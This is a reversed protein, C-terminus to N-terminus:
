RQRTRYALPFQKKLAQANQTAVIIPLHCKGFFLLFMQAAQPVRQLRNDHESIGAQRWVDHLFQIAGQGIVFQDLHRGPDPLAALAIRREIIQSPL